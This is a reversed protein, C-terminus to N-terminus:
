CNKEYLRKLIPLALFNQPVRCFSFFPSSNQRTGWFKKQGKKNQLPNLLDIFIKFFVGDDEPYLLSCNKSLEPKRLLLRWLLQCIADFKLPKGLLVLSVISNDRDLRQQHGALLLLYIRLFGRNSLAAHKKWSCAALM